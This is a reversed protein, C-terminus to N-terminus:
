RQCAFETSALLAWYLDEYREKTDPGAKIFALWRSLETNTPLRMLVRECLERLRRRHSPVEKLLSHLIRGPRAKILGNFAEGNILRLAQRTSSGFAQEKTNDGALDQLEKTLSRKMAIHLFKLEGPAPKDRGTATLFAAAIQDARLPRHLTPLGESDKDKTAALEAKRQYSKTQLLLQRLERLRFDSEVFAKALLKLLQPDNGPANIDTIAGILPVGFLEEFVRNVQARAFYSEAGDKPGATLWKALAKRRKPSASLDTGDIAKPKFPKSLKAKNLKFRYDGIPSEYLEFQQQGLRRVRLRGFNAAFEHFQSQKWDAFPHDHCRACDLSVGLFQRAVATATDPANGRYQLLFLTSFDDGAKGEKSILDAAIDKFSRNKASSQASWNTLLKRIAANANKELLREAFRQGLFRASSESQLARKIAKLRKGSSRDTVFARAEELNPIRGEIDLTMRRLFARDDCRDKVEGFQEQFAKDIDGPTVEAGASQGLILILALSKILKCLM